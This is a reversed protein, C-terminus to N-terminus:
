HSTAESAGSVAPSSGPATGQPREAPSVTLTVQRLAQSRAQAGPALRTFRLPLRKVSAELRDLGVSDPTVVVLSLGGQEGFANLAISDFPRLTASFVIAQSFFSPEALLLSRAVDVRTEDAVLLVPAPAVYAGYAAKLGQLARRSRAGATDASAHTCLLFRGGIDGPKWSECAARDKVFAMLVQAPASAGLPAAVEVGEVKEVDRLELPELGGHSEAKKKCAIAGASLATLLVLFTSLRASRNM